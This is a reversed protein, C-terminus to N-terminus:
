NEVVLTGGNEVKVLSQIDKIGSFPTNGDITLNQLTLTGGAQVVFLPSTLAKVTPGVVPTAAAGFKLLPDRRITVDKDIITAPAYQTDVSIDVVQPDDVNNSFVDPDGAPIANGFANYGLALEEASVDTPGDAVEPSPRTWKDAY